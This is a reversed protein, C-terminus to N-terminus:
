IEGSGRGGIPFLLARRNHGARQIEVALAMGGVKRVGQPCAGYRKFRRHIRHLASRRFLHQNGSRVAADASGFAPKFWCKSVPGGGKHNSRGIENGAKFANIGNEAVEGIQPSCLIVGKQLVPLASEDILVAIHRGHPFCNRLQHFSIRQRRRVKGFDREVSVILSGM